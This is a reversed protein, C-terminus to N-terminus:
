KQGETGAAPTAPVSAPQPGGPPPEVPQLEAPEPDDGCLDLTTFGLVFDLLEVVSVGVHAGVIASAGVEVDLLRARESGTKFAETPPYRVLMFWSRKLSDYKESGRVSGMMDGTLHTSGTFINGQSERTGLGMYRGDIDFGWQSGGGLATGILGTAQAHVDLGPGISLGLRFIDAFDGGRDAAYRCGSATLVLLVLVRAPATPRM